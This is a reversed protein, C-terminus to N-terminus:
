FENVKNPKGHVFWIEKVAEGTENFYEWHGERMYEFVEEHYIVEGVESVKGNEHYETKTYLRQKRSELELMSEVNGNRYYSEQILYFDLAKNYKEHYSIQGTDYYDTWELVLGDAYVIVSKKVGNEHFKTLRCLKESLHKFERELTGDPFYNKYIKLRGEEYFGKHLITGDPYYDKVYGLCPLDNCRRMTDKDGYIGNLKEYAEIGFFSDIVVNPTKTSTQGISIISLLLIGLVGCTKIVNTCFGSKSKLLHLLFAM